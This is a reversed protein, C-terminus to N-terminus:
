CCVCHTRVDCCPQLSCKRNHAALLTICFCVMLMMNTCTSVCICAPQTGYLVLGPWPKPKSESAPSGLSPSVNGMPSEPARRPTMNLESSMTRRHRHASIPGLKRLGTDSVHASCPLHQILATMRSICKCPQAPAQIVTMRSICKCPQAPAQIVSMSKCM